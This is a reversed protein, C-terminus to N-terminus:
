WLNLNHVLRRESINDDKCVKNTGQTGSLLIPNHNIILEITQIYILFWGKLVSTATCTSGTGVSFNM